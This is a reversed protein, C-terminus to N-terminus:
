VLKFIDASKKSQELRSLISTFEQNTIVGENLLYEIHRTYVEAKQTPSLDNPYRISNIRKVLAKVFSEFESKETKSPFLAFLNSGTTKHLFVTAAVSGKICSNLALLAFFGFAVGLVIPFESASISGQYYGFQSAVAVLLCLIFILFAKINFKKFRVPNPNILDLPIRASQSKFLGKHCIEIENNSFLHFINKEFLGLKQEIELESYM